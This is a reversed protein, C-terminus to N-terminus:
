TSTESKELEIVKSYNGYDINKIGLGNKNFYLKLDKKMFNKFEKPEFLKILLFLLKQFFKKPFEWEIIIIKGDKKLVKKCEALIKNAMEEPIEHFLLSIIIFDISNTEFQIDLANMKYLEINKINENMIRNKAIKLMEDSLDIGIIKLDPKNKALIISNESTGIAIELIRYDGNPIKDLLILRPSNKKFYFFDISRYIKSIFKYSVAM